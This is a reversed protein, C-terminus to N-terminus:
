EEEEDQIHDGCDICEVIDADLYYWREHKCTM